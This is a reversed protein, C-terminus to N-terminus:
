TDGHASYARQVFPGASLAVDTARPAVGLTDASTPTKRKRGADVDSQM